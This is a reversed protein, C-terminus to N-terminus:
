ANEMLNPKNENEQGILSMKLIPTQLCFSFTDSKLSVLPHPPWFGLTNAQTTIHLFRSNETLRYLPLTQHPHADSINNVDNCSRISLLTPIPCPHPYGSERGGM